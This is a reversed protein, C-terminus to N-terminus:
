GIAFQRQHVHHNHTQSQDVQRAQVRKALDPRLQDLHCRPRRGLLLEAPSIGTTSQPTIRYHFLFRSVRTPIPIETNAKEMAVKFTQVAREVLGNTVPHYPAGTVHRIGDRQLHKFENSTFVFGNDTVLLEPLRHNAFTARIM